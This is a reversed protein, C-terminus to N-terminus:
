VKSPHTAEAIMMEIERKLILEEVEKPPEGKIGEEDSDEKGNSEKEWEPEFWFNLSM